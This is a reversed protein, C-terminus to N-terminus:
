LAQDSLQVTQLFVLSARATQKQLLGDVYRCVTQGSWQGTTESSASFSGSFCPGPLGLPDTFRTGWAPAERTGCPSAM